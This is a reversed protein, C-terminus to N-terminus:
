KRAGERHGLRPPSVILFLLFLSVALVLMMQWKECCSRDTSSARTKALPACSTRCRFGDTLCAGWTSCSQNQRRVATFLLHTARRESMHAHTHTTKQDTRRRQNQDTRRRQKPQVDANNPRNTQAAQDTRRRKTTRHRQKTQKEAEAGRRHWPQRKGGQLVQPAETTARDAADEGSQEM